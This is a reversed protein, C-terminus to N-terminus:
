DMKLYETETFSGDVKNFKIPITGFKRHQLDVNQSVNVSGDGNILFSALGLKNLSNHIEDFNEYLKLYKM